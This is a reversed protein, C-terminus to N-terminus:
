RLEEIPIGRRLLLRLLRAVPEPPGKAAWNQGTRPHAGMHEAAAEQTVGLKAIAKLYQDRNMTHGQQGRPQPHSRHYPRPSAPERGVQNM